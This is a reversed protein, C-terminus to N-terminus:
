RLTSSCAVLLHSRERTARGLRARRKLVAHARAAIRGTRCTLQVESVKTRRQKGPQKCSRGPTTKQEPDFVEVSRTDTGSHCLLLQSIERGQTECEVGFRNHLRLPQGGVVIGEPSKGVCRVLAETAPPLNGLRGRRRVVGWGM